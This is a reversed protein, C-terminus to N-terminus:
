ITIEGTIEAEHIAGALTFSFAGYPYKRAARDSESTQSRMLFNVSYLPKGNDDDAIMGNNYGKVIADLTAAELIAIGANTYAIKNNMNFAKQVNYTINQVIFDKSDIIDAYEGSGVKGESTVIDGAKEVITIAGNTHLTTLDTDSIELPTIGNIKINKYTFSGAALGATAGVVAAAALADTHYVVFVRDNTSYTNSTPKTTVSLFLMRDTTGIYTAIASANTQSRVLLMQRWGKTLYKAFNAETFAKQTLVAIKSPANKQSFIINAAKYVDTTNAYPAAVVEGLNAFEEYKDADASSDIVYLLPFWTGLSGFPKSVEIKVKVDLAM